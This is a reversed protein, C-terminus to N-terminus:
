LRNSSKKELWLKGYKECLKNVTRKYLSFTIPLYHEPSSIHNYLYFLTTLKYYYKNNQIFLFIYFKYFILFNHNRYNNLTIFKSLFIPSSIHIYSLILLQHLISITLFVFYMNILKSNVYSISFRSCTISIHELLQGIEFKYNL